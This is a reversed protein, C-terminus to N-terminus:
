LAGCNVAVTDNGIHYVGDSTVYEVNQARGAFYVGTAGIDSAYFKNGLGPWCWLHSGYARCM